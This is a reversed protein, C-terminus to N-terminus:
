ADDALGLECRLRDLQLLYDETPLPQRCRLELRVLTAVMRQHEVSAWTVAQPSCWLEFWRVWEGSTPEIL